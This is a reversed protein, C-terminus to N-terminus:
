KLKFVIKFSNFGDEKESNVFNFQIDEKKVYGDKFYIGDFSNIIKICAIQIDEQGEILNSLFNNYRNKLIHDVYTNFTKQLKDIDKTTVKLVPESLTKYEKFSSKPLSKVIIKKDGKIYDYRELSSEDIDIKFESPNYNVTKIKDFINGGEVAWEIKPYTNSKNWQKLDIEMFNM